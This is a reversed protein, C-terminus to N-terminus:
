LGQLATEAARRSGHAQSLIGQEENTMLTDFHQTFNTRARELVAQLKELDDILKLLEPDARKFLATRLMTQEAATMNVTWPPVGLASKYTLVDLGEIADNIIQNRRQKTEGALRAALAYVIATEDATPTVAREMIRHLEDREADVALIAGTMRQEVKEQNQKRLKNLKELNSAKTAMMNGLIAPAARDTAAWDAKSAHLAQSAALGVDRTADPNEIVGFHMGLYADSHRQGRVFGSGTDVM